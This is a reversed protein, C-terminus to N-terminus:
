HGGSVGNGVRGSHRARILQSARALEVNPLASPQDLGRMRARLRAIDWSANVQPDGNYYMSLRPDDLTDLAERDVRGSLQRARACLRGM